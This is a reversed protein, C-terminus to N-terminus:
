FLQNFKTWSLFYSFTFWKTYLRLILSLQYLAWTTSAELFTFALKQLTHM